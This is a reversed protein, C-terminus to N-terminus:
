TATPNIWLCSPSFLEISMGLWLSTGTAQCFVLGSSAAISSFRFLVSCWKCPPVYTYLIWHQAKRETSQHQQHTSLFPMRWRGAGHNGILKPPFQWIYRIKSGFSGSFHLFFKVASNRHFWDNVRDFIYMTFMGTIGNALRNQMISLLAYSFPSYLESDYMVRTSTACICYM